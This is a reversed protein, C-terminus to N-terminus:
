VLKNKIALSIAEGLSNVHLKQYINKIHTNVTNYSITMKEAVMKYSLGNSLYSLVEKEKITLNFEEKSFKTQSNFYKIVKIAVSPTMFAGGEYVEVISQLLSDASTNKLIYGEAGAQISAFIKEDDDFVTQMIVKISPFHQKILRVGEIGNVNPMEIDMLVIDPQLVKMDNLITSCDDFSGICHLNENIQMLDKIMTCREANDDYIVVEIM